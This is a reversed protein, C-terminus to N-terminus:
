EEPMEVPVARNTTKLGQEGAAALSSASAPIKLFRDEGEGVSKAGDIAGGSPIGQVKSRGMGMRIQFATDEV